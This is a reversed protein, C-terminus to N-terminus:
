KSSMNWYKFNPSFMDYPNNHIVPNSIIVVVVFFYIYFSCRRFIRKKDLSHETGSFIRFYITNNLCQILLYFSYFFFCGSYCCLVFLNWREFFAMKWLVWKNRTYRRNPVLNVCRTQVLFYYIWRYLDTHCLFLYIFIFCMQANWHKCKRSSNSAQFIPSFPSAM